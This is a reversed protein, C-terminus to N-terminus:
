ISIVLGLHNIVPLFRRDSCKGPNIQDPLMIVPIRINGQAPLRGNDSVTHHRHPNSKGAMCSIMNQPDIAPFGTKVRGKRHIQCSTKLVSLQQRFINGDRDVTVTIIMYPGSQRLLASGNGPPSVLGQHHIQRSRIGPVPDSATAWLTKSFM